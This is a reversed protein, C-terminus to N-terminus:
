LTISISGNTAISLKGVDGSAELGTADSSTINIWKKGDFVELANESPNWIVDGSNFQNQDRVTVTFVPTANPDFTELNLQLIRVLRNFLAGDVEGNTANPLRTELLKGM